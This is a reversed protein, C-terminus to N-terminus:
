QQPLFDQIYRVSGEFMSDEGSLLMPISVGTM